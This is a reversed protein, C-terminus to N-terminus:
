NHVRSIRHWETSGRWIHELTVVCQTILITLQLSMLLSLFLISVTFDTFWPLLSVNQGMRMRNNAVECCCLGVTSEGEWSRYIQEYAKRLNNVWALPACLGCLGCLVEENVSLHKACKRVFNEFRGHCPSQKWSPRFSCDVQLNSQAAHWGCEVHSVHEQIGM